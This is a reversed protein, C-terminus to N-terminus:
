SGQAVGTTQAYFWAMERAIGEALNPVRLEVPLVGWAYTEVEFHQCKSTQSITSLCERIDDQTAWLRGFRQLYIPVHFHMRWEGAAITNAPVTALALPLDEHFSISSAQQICTQHLYRPEHFQSLQTFARAREDFELEDFKAAVAASVQVKGVEIGAAAYKKLVDTQNEFMVAAHCIDHCVQLHERILSENGQPFLWDRFFAVVDESCQLYCGPEPEICLSITRGTDAKLKGMAEAAVYLNRAALSLQDRSPHPQSWALPLTSISGSVGEPLLRHQAEILRLTFELRSSDWWTPIYVRHKVVEEHFDGYPFGNFTFPTLGVEALWAAFEPLRQSQLLEEVAPAALWLGVGMADHPRVQQKVALAYKELNLRTQSLTPGAHVNTCYGIQM